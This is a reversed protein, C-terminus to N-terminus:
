KEAGDSDTTEATEDVASEAEVEGAPSDGAATEEEQAFSSVVDRLAGLQAVIGDRRKSVREVEAKIAALERQ